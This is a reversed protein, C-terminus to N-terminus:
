NSQSSSAAADRTQASLDVTPLTTGVCERNPPTAPPTNM